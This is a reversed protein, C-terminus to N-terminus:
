IDYRTRGKGFVSRRAWIGVIILIISAIAGYALLGLIHEDM